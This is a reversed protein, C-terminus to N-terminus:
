TSSRQNKWAIYALGLHWATLFAFLIAMETKGSHIYMAMIGIMLTASFVIWWVSPNKAREQRAARKRKNRKEKENAELVFSYAYDNNDVAM